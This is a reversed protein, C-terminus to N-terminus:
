PAIRQVAWAAQEDERLYQVRDHLRSPKGLWFEVESCLSSTLSAHRHSWSNIVSRPVIRWGGWFLPRPIDEQGEHRAEVESVHRDLEGEQVPQSQPSAWAGVRSGRPRSAYYADSEQTEVKEVRGVVRVQRSIEKWYISIAANPNQELESSKRSTYNTFFVFGRDDVQKLLVVRSSPVGAATATALNMAEPERVGNEHAHKFWARFQELPSAHVTSPTLHEGTAYQNHSTVKLVSSEPTFEM